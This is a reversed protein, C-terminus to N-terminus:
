ASRPGLTRPTAATSGRTADRDVSPYSSAPKPDGKAQQVPNKRKLGSLLGSGSKKM